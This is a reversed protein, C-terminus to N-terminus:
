FQLMMKNEDYYKKGDFMARPETGYTKFGFSEYFAKARVNDTVVALSLQEVGEIERVKDILYSV